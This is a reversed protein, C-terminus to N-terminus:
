DAILAQAVAHSDELMHCRVILEGETRIDFAFETEILKGTANVRSALSGLAVARQDDGLIASVEFRESTVQERIQQYFEAVGARGKKRGIWPVRALDGAIYWDIDESFLEAIQEPSAGEGIRKFLGQVLDRATPHPM